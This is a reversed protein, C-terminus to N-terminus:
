TWQEPHHEVIHYIVDADYVTGKLAQSIANKLRRQFGINTRFGDSRNVNIVEIIKKTLDLDNGLNDYLARYALNRLIPDDTLGRGQLEENIEKVRRLFEAYDIRQQELDKILRELRASLRKYENPNSNRRRCVYRRTNNIMTEADSRGGKRKQSEKTEAEADAIATAIYELFSFEDLDDIDNVAGAMVYRDILSRMEADYIKFDVSDGSRLMLACRIDKYDCVKAYLGDVESATYVKDIDSALEAYVRVLKSIADYLYQRKKANKELCETQQEYDTVSSPYCYYDFYNDLEKPQMVEDTQMEVAELADELSEKLGELRNKLLKQIDAPDFKDGDNPEGEAGVTSFDDIASEIFKFLHRYDVVYGFLKNKGNVRNVRCIAQFLTHDVIKRDLYIYTAAPADFGTLLKDCVILLKMQGPEKIFKDKAWEEFAKPSAHDKMMEKALKYKLEEETLKAGTFGEALAPDNPEYSSIVACKGQLETKNFIDWYQYAEYISDCVLMANGWGQSLAPKLEMDCLIGSAIREMRNRSSYLAQMTAWREKIKEKAISTLRRTSNEFLADIANKDTLFQEVDRAEYKLDLVVGDKVAEEFLYTHIYSGFKSASTARKESGKLLPTGTFGILMVDDGMIKRMAAHMLGGQTRHCEDVFVFCKGKAKFNPFDRELNEALDQMASTIDRKAGQKYAPTDEIRPGRPAFKHALTTILKPEDSNLKNLLDNGSEAHYYRDNQNAAFIGSKRLGATIQKDLEDRDTIIVVRSTPINELIWQSLWVMLLSKGSGQSHWIIGSEGTQIRPQAAKLAFYQNPRALKKVGGDYIVLDHIFELLRTPEIMQLVSRYLENPEDMFTGPQKVGEALSGTPEKWRLYFKESTCTTGYWLGESQNGAMALQVTTFFRPINGDQQNRYNQRMGENVSVSAKKLEIVVLAIGNVYLVLDPRRSDHADGMTQVKVEEALEFVNNFPNKWDIFHIRKSVTGQQKVDTGYRLLSYVAASADMLNSWGTCGAVARELDKIASDADHSTHGNNKIFKILIETRLNTNYGENLRGIYKVNSLNSTIRDILTNQVVRESGVVHNNETLSM